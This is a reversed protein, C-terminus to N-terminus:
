RQYRVWLSAGLLPTQGAAALWHPLRAPLSALAVAAEAVQRMRGRPRSRVINSLTGSKQARRMHAYVLDCRMFAPWSFPERDCRDLRWGATDALRQLAQPTWQSIHNPPMDRLSAHAENFATRERNPVAVFIAGGPRTLENLRTTLAHLDDMHELVQFLFVAALQGRWPDLEANRVDCAMAQFGKAALQERGADSYELAIVQEAAVHAPALQGLFYGFGSGIDLVPGPQLPASRLSDLTRLFEWRQAPYASFPYALNYFHGDGAVFPWAYTLACQGCAYMSCDNRSWLGTIHDCLAAHRQPYEEALVFHQAAEAASYSVDSPMDSVQKCLPCRPSESLSLISEVPTPGSRVSVACSAPWAGAGPNGDPESLSFRPQM